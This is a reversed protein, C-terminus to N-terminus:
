FEAFGPEGVRCIDDGNAFETVAAVFAQEDGTHFACALQVDEAFVSDRVRGGADAVMRTLRDYASYPIQVVVRTVLTMEVIGGAAHAEEVAAQTAATYARVLGGPGLLTGGFYRTVVCCVDKLDAGHLVELTPMGATRSPEGDDSCRERGDALVWAPVNHRADHHRSRVKEIFDNAEAEGSVHTLQAIFRSRRDEFEGTVETGNALTLYSQRSSEGPMM